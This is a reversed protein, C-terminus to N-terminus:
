FLCVFFSVSPPPPKPPPNLRQLSDNKLDWSWYAFKSKSVSASLQFIASKRGRQIQCLRSKFTGSLAMDGMFAELTSPKTWVGTPVVGCQGTSNGAQISGSPSPQAPSSRSKPPIEGELSIGEDGMAWFDGALCLPLETATSSSSARTIYHFDGRYNLSHFCLSPQQSPITFNLSCPPVPTHRAPFIAATPCTPKPKCGIFSFNWSRGSGRQGGDGGEQNGSYRLHPLYRGTARKGPRCPVSPTSVAIEPCM